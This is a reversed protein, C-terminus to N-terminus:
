QKTVAAVDVPTGGEAIQPAPAKSASGTRMVSERPACGTDILSQARDFKIMQAPENTYQYEKALVLKLEPPM